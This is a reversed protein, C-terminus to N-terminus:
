VSRGRSVGSSSRRWLEMRCIVGQPLEGQTERLLSRPVDVLRRRLLTSDVLAKHFRNEIIVPELEVPSAM